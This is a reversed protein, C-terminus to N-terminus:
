GPVPPQTPAARREAGNPGGDSQSSRCVPRRVHTGLNHADLEAFPILLLAVFGHDHGLEISRIM